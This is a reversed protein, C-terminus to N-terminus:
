FLSESFGKAMLANKYSTLIESKLNECTRLTARTTISNLLITKSAKDDLGRFGPVYRRGYAELAAGAFAKSEDYRMTTTAM